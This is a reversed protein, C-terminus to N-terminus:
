ETDPEIELGTLARYLIELSEENMCFGFGNSNALEVIFEGKKIGFEEYEDDSSSVLTVCDDEPNDKPIPLVYYTHYLPEGSEEDYGDKESYEEWEQREFTEKTIPVLPFEIFDKKM